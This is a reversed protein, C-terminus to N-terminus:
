HLKRIIIKKKLKAIFLDYNQWIDKGGRASISNYKCVCELVFGMNCSNVLVISSWVNMSAVASDMALKPWHMCMVICLRM